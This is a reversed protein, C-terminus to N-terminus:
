AVKQPRWRTAHALVREMEAFPTHSTFYDFAGCEMASLYPQMGAVASLVVVPLEEKASRLWALATRRELEEAPLYLLVADALQRLLYTEAAQTDAVAEFQYGCGRLRDFVDGFPSAAGVVLLKGMPRAQM